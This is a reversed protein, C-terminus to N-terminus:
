RLLLLIASTFSISLIAARMRSPSVFRAIMPAVTVGAIVGPLLAAALKLHLLDFLGIRALAAVSGIYAIFFLAGMMARAQDPRANQLVLAVPPGHIGAMTGMLGSLSGGALLSFTTVPIRPSAVSIAVALLILLAFVKSLDTTDIRSLALAAVLTGLTLGLLAYGMHAANVARRERIASSLALVSGALLMPGPILRPDLLALLPVALLALGIGITAQLTSAIAMVLNAAILSQLPFDTAPM